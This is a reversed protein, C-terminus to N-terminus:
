LKVKKRKITGTFPRSLDKIIWEPWKKSGRIPKKPEVEMPKMIKDGREKTQAM